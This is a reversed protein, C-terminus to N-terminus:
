NEEPPNEELTLARETYNVFRRDALAQLERDVERLSQPIVPLHVTLSSIAASGGQAATAGSDDCVGTEGANEVLQEDVDMSTRAATAANRATMGAEFQRLMNIDNSTRAVVDQYTRTLQSELQKIYNQVRHFEGCLEDRKTTIEELRDEVLKAMQPTPDNEMNEEFTKAYEAIKSRKKRALSEIDERAHLKHDDLACVCCIGLECEHCYFTVVNNTHKTCFLHETIRVIKHDDFQRLDNHVLICDTCFNENCQYCHNTSQKKMPNRECWDCLRVVKQNNGVGQDTDKHIGAVSFRPLDKILQGPKFDTKHQCTPCVVIGDGNGSTSVLKQLCRVCSDHGCCLERAMTIDDLTYDEECLPCKYSSGHVQGEERAEAMNLALDM